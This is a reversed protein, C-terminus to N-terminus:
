NCDYKQYTVGQESRLSYVVGGDDLVALDRFTEEPLTNAPMVASGIPAGKLPELCQLVVSVTQTDDEVEAAFYIVGHKDTDLLKIAHILARLRLERTFKHENTKRDISSVWARGGIADTIGANIFSLGDRSPRGPIETRPEAPKGSTDGIRVLPGHEREVYVDNGDVFVGTVLGTEPVGEGALPLQGRPAGGEDYLTVAKNSFRDMVAMSGDKGLAIDQATLSKVDVEGEPKGDAGFRVVRGNVQDLVYVRGKADMTLSMPGSPNGEQPRDRGLHNGRSGGWPSFLVVGEPGADRRTVEVVASGAANPSPRPAGTGAAGPRSASGKTNLANTSKSRDSSCARTVILSAIMVLAGLGVLLKGNSRKRM